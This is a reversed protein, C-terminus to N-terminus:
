EDSGPSKLLRRLVEGVKANACDAVVLKGTRDFIYYDPYGNVKYAEITKKDTDLAVPYAVGHKEVVDKAKEAGRPHCIGIFVVDEAHARHIENNHPIARICPGCWTAWFDLVVIKGKLDDLTIAEANIWDTVELAPPQEAGQLGALRERKKADGEFADSFDDGVSVAAGAVVMLLGLVLKKMWHREENM